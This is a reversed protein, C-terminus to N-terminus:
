IRLDEYLEDPTDFSALKERDQAEDLAKITTENPLEVPFPLRHQLQVHRYFLSVAESATLGLRKFIREASRQVDPDVHLSITTSM